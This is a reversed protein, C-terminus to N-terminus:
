FAPSNAQRTPNGALDPTPPPITAMTGCSIAIATQLGSSSGAPFERAPIAASSCNVCVNPRETYQHIRKFREKGAQRSRCKTRTKTEPYFFSLIAPIFARLHDIFVGGIKDGLSQRWSMRRIITLLRRHPAMRYKDRLMRRCGATALTQRLPVLNRLSFRQAFRLLLINDANDMVPQDYLHILPLPLADNGVSEGIVDGKYGKSIREQEESEQSKYTAFTLSEPGNEVNGIFPTSNTTYLYEVVKNM